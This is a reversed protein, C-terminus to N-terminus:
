SVSCCKGSKAKKKPARPKAQVEFLQDISLSAPMPRKIETPPPQQMVSEPGKASEPASATVIVLSTTTGAIAPQQQLQQQQQVLLAEAQKRAKEEQLRKARAVQRAKGNRMTQAHWEHLVSGALAKCALTFIKKVMPHLERQKEHRATLRLAETTGKFFAQLFSSFATREEGALVSHDLRQELLLRRLQFGVLQGVAVPLDDVKEGLSSSAVGQRTAAEALRMAAVTPSPEFRYRLTVSYTASSSTFDLVNTGSVVNTMIFRSPESSQQQQQLLTLILDLEILGVSSSSPPSQLSRRLGFVSARRSSGGLSLSLSLTCAEGDLVIAAEKHNSSPVESNELVPVVIPAKNDYVASLSGSFKASRKTDKSTTQFTDSSLFLTGRLNERWTEGFMGSLALAEVPPLDRLDLVQQLALREGREVVVLENFEAERENLITQRLQVELDITATYAFVHSFTVNKTEEDMAAIEEQFLREQEARDAEEAVCGMCMRMGFGSDVKCCNGCFVQGCLRCHHRRIFLTFSQACSTCLPADSDKVWTVETATSRASDPMSSQSGLRPTLRASLMRTLRPTAGSASTQPLPTGERLRPPTGNRRGPTDIRPTNTLSGLRCRASAQPAGDPPPSDQLRKMTDLKLTPISLKPPPARPVIAAAPLLDEDHFDLDESDSSSEPFTREKKRSRSKSAFVPEVDSNPTVSRPTVPLTELAVSVFCLLSADLHRTLFGEEGKGKRRHERRRVWSWRSSFVPFFTKSFDIAYEWGNEDTAGDTVVDEWDADFVLKVPGVTRDLDMISTPAPAADAAACLKADVGGEISPGADHQGDKSGFRPPDSAERRLSAWGSIPYRRETEWVSIVFGRKM